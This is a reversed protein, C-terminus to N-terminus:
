PRSGAREVEERAQAALAPEVGDLRQDLLHVAVDLSAGRSLDAAHSEALRVPRM